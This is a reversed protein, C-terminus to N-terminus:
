KQRPMADDIVKSYWPDPREAREGEGVVALGPVWSCGARREAIGGVHLREPGPSSLSVGAGAPGARADGRAAARVHVPDRLDAHAARARRRAPPAVEDGDGGCRVGGAAHQGCCPGVNQM